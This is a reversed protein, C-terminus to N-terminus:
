RHVLSKDHQKGGKIIKGLRIKNYKYHAKPYFASKLHHKNNIVVALKSNTFIIYSNHIEDYVMKEIGSNLASEIQHKEIHHRNYTHLLAIDNYYVTM